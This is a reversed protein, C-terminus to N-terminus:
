PRSTPAGEMRRQNYVAMIDRRSLLGVVRNGNEPDTIPLEALDLAVMRQLASDLGDNLSLSV